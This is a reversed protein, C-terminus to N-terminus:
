EEAFDGWINPQNKLSEWYDDDAEVLREGLNSATDKIAAVAHLTLSM